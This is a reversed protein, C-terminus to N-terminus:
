SFNFTTKTSLLKSANAFLRFRLFKTKYGTSIIPHSIAFIPIKQSKVLGDVKFGNLLIHTQSGAYRNEVVIGEIFLILIYKM